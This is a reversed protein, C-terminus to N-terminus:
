DVLAWIWSIWEKMSFLTNYLPLVACRKLVPQQDTIPELNNWNEQEKMRLNILHSENSISENKCAEKLRKRIEGVSNTEAEPCFQHHLWSCLSLTQNCDFCQRQHLPEKLKLNDVCITTEKDRTSASEWSQHMRQIACQYQSLYIM